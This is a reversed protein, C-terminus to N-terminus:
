ARGQMCRPQCPVALILLHGALFPVGSPALLGLDELIVFPFLLTLAGAQVIVTKYLGPRSAEVPFCPHSCARRWDPCVPLDAPRQQPSGRHRRCREVGNRRSDRLSDPYNGNGRGSPSVGGKPARRWLGCSPLTAPVPCCYRFGPGASSVSAERDSTWARM